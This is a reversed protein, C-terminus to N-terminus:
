DRGTRTGPLFTAALSSSMSGPLRMMYVLRATLVTSCFASFGLAVITLKLSTTVTTPETLSPGLTIAIRADDDAKWVSLALQCLGWSAAIM